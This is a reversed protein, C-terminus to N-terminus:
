VLHLPISTILLSLWAVQRVRDGFWVNRVSSLGIDLWRGREHVRDIDGRTPASLCQMAANSAGLILTALINIGLHAITSRSGAYGCDGEFLLKGGTDSDPLKTSVALLVINVLLVFATVVIGLTVIGRFDRLPLRERLSKAGPYNM